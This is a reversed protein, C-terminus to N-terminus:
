RSLTLNLLINVTDENFFCGLLPNHGEYGKWLEPHVASIHVVSDGPIQNPSSANMIEMICLM